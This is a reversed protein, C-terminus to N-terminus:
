QHSRPKQDNKLVKDRVANEIVRIVPDHSMM